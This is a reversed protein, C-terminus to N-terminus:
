GTGLLTGFSYEARDVAGYVAHLIRKKKWYDLQQDLAPGELWDRQWVAYDAYQVTLEPLKPMQGAVLADYASALDRFM